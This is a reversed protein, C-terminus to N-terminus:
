QLIIGDKETQFWWDRNSIYPYVTNQSINRICFIECFSKHFIKYLLTYKMYVNSEKKVRILSTKKFITKEPPLWNVVGEGMM